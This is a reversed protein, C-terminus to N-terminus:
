RHPLTLLLWESANTGKKQQLQSKLKCVMSKPIQMLLPSYLDRFAVYIIALLIM